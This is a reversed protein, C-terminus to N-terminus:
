PNRSKTSEEGKLIYTYKLSPNIQFARGSEFHFRMELTDQSLRHRGKARRPALLLGFVIRPDAGIQFLTDGPAGPASRV